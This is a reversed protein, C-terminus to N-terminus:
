PAHIADIIEFIVQKDSWICAIRTISNPEVIFDRIHCSVLDTCSIHIARVCTPEHVLTLRTGLGMKAEMEQFPDPYSVICTAHTQALRDQHKSTNKATAHICEEVNYLTINLMTFKLLVFLRYLSPM